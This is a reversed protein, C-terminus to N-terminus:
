GIEGEERERGEERRERERERGGEMGEWEEDRWERGAERERREVKRLLLVSGAPTVYLRV